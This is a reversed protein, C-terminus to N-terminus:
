QGEAYEMGDEECRTPTDAASRIMVHLGCTLEGGVTNSNAPRILSLSIKAPKLSRVVIEFM